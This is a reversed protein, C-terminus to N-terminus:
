PQIRVELIQAEGSVHVMERWQLKHHTIIRVGGAAEDTGSIWAVAAGKHLVECVGDGNTLNSNWVLRLQTARSGRPKSM